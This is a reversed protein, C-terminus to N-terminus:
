LRYNSGIATLVFDVILWSAYVLIMGAIASFLIKKGLSKQNPNGGSTILIAAGITAFLIALGVTLKEWIFLLIKPVIGTLDDLTCPNQGSNGCQVLGEQGYAFFPIALITLFILFILGKKM